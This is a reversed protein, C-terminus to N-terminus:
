NKIVKFTDEGVLIYYVGSPYTSLDVSKSNDASNILLGMSNMLKWNITHSFEIKDKTPNPYLRLKTEISEDMGTIICSGESVGDSFSILDINALGDTTLATLNIENSGQVLNVEITAVNWTTWAGTVPLALTGAPTGNVSLSGDRSVTGSNAYRFSLTTTQDSSSNLVWTAGAGLINDANVYGAGSFGANKDELLIGDVSCATEAEIFGACAVNGNTASICVHCDDLYASGGWNGECDQTCAEKGTNGGVCTGCEDTFAIGGFVGNCDTTCTGATVTADQFAFLDINPGGEEITSTLKITNVGETLNLTVSEIAWSTWSGTTTGTLQTQVTGNVAITMGRASASGNAYRIDITTTGASQAYMTWSGSSTNSYDFNVYGDGTFGANITELIGNASCFDEGQMSGSCATKGTTGGTCIGCDDLVASGDPVGACDANQNIIRINPKPPSQMGHGLYYDVHNSQMYGKYTFSLRYAPNHALTYLRNNTPTTTTFVLLEQRNYHEWIVEERWDGMIDGYFTPSDRWTKIAGDRYATLLRICCTNTNFDWKEILERNLNESLLDGDWWIRFNPWPANAADAIQNGTKSNHIGYFSWYEYGPQDPDIDAATGRAADVVDDTYHNRIIKGTAAEYYYTALKSPNDQQIGFGELGPRDPDYDTIHFRDGHIVGPISYLFKGNDDIVYGGDCVEDKGDGDLDITRIQHFDPANTNERKWKWQQQLQGTLFSYACIVLNFGGNGVRNKAKLIISPNIGDLYAIGLHAQLPGDSQYDTPMQIRSLEKGTMGDLVSLFQDTNNSHNLTSGDGFVFGNATKIIVEAKGDNNLDYVTAGDWQGNGMATPGGEIGNRNFGNPGADTRWLFTGNSLYADIKVAGEGNPNRDVVFDYTGDGNLDGVWTFHVYWDADTGIGVSKLPISLYQGIPANAKLIYSESPKGTFGNIITEVYYANDQNTAIADDVWNTGGTIPTNNLKVPDNNGTKRYLNFSINDPDTGLVRWSIFASTNSQKVAVVGRNLNEMWRQAHSELSLLMACGTILYFFRAIM